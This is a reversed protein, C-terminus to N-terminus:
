SGRYTTFGYPSILLPIHYHSEPNKVRFTVSVEPYFAESWHTGVDFLIRYRGSALPTDLPLLSPVRGDENTVASAVKEEDRFLHVPVGSVPRGAATDLIHTSIGSM